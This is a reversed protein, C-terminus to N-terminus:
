GKSSQRHVKVAKELRIIDQGSVDTGGATVATVLAVVLADATNIVNTNDVVVSPKISPIEFSTKRRDALSFSFYGKKQVESTEPPNIAGTEVYNRSISYEVIPADSLAGFAAVAAAAAAEVDLYALASQFFIGTTSKNKDRDQFTMSLGWNNAELAM